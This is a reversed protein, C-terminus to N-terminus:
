DSDPLFAICAPQDVELTQKTTELAGTEQDIKFSVITGNGQNAALLFAGNPSIALSRTSSGGSPWKGIETLKGTKADVAYGSIINPGRNSGYLFTGKPHIVLDAGGGGGRPLHQIFKAQEDEAKPDFSLVSVTNSAENMCYIFRGNPHWRLHRPQQGPKAAVSKTLTLKAKAADLKYLHVKDIGLDGVVAWKSTPDIVVCHPHSALQRDSDSGGKGDHEFRGTISKLRGDDGARVAVISGRSPYTDYRFNTLLVNKGSTDIDVFCPTKGDIPLQNLFLLKGKDDFRFASLAANTKGADPRESGGYLFKGDASPALWTLKHESVKRMNTLKGDAEDDLTCRFVGEKGAILLNNACLCNTNAWSLTAILLSLVTRRSLM